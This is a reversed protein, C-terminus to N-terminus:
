VFLSVPSCVNDLSNAEEGCNFCAVKPTSTLEEIKRTNGKIRLQCIHGEHKEDCCCVTCEGM